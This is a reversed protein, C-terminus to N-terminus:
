FREKGTYGAERVAAYVTTGRMSQRTHFVKYDRKGLDRGALDVGLVYNEGRVQCHVFLDPRKLEIRCGTKENIADAVVTEIEPSQFEHEGRRDCEARFSANEKQYPAYDFASIVDVPLDEPTTLAGECILVLVRSALQSRYCLTVADAPTCGEILVYSARLTAEKKLLEKVELAAQTECGTDCLLALTFTTM